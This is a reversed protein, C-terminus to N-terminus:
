AGDLPLPPSSPVRDRVSDEVTKYDGERLSHCWPGDAETFRLGGRRNWCMVELHKRVAVLRAADLAPVLDTDHSCVIGVDYGGQYTMRVLDVALAVDVGKEQAKAEPWDAPYRLPRQYVVLRGDPAEARWAAARAQNEGNAAPQHTASPLGRYVRVEHLECSPVRSDARRRNVLLEGLRWPSIHGSVAKFEAKARRSVNEYDIFVVVRETM